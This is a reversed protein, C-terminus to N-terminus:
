KLILSELISIFQTLSLNDSISGNQVIHLSGKEESVLIVICDTKESIGLAARHRTGHSKKLRNNSDKSMPLVVGAHTIKKEKIIIAGDHLPSYKSFIAELMSISIDANLIHTKNDVYEELSNNKEVCILAGERKQIIRKMALAIDKIEKDFLSIEKTEDFFHQIYKIYVLEFITAIKDLCLKIEQTFIIIFSLTSIQLITNININLIKLIPFLLINLVFFGLLYRNRSTRFLKYINKFM